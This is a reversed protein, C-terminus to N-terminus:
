SGTIVEYCAAALGAGGCDFFNDRFSQIILFARAAVNSNGLLVRRSYGLVMRRIQEPDEDENQKLVKVMEPWKIKPNLLARAINVSQSELTISKISNLQDEEDKVSIIQDLIVLAKRASGESKEIIAEIVEESLEVGEKKSISNVLELMSKRNLLKVAIESCRTRITKILKQPDTTALMFYAHSPTDELIKLFANQADSSLKHAEDIIWVRTEGSIPAQGMRSRIERVMDIGRFDACNIETCDHKGCKLKSCLIRALTTKGCGSPGTFLISHPITQQNVKSLLIKIAENQGIMEKFTQPRHKKYLEHM